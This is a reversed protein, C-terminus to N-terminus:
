AVEMAAQQQEYMLMEEDTIEIDSESDSEEGRGLAIRLKKRMEDAAEQQRQRKAAARKVLVAESVPARPAKPLVDLIRGAMNGATHMRMNNTNIAQLVHYGLDDRAAELEAVIVAAELKAAELKATLKESDADFKLQYSAEMGALQKRLRAALQPDAGSATLAALQATAGAHEAEMRKGVREYLRLVEADIDVTAASQAKGLKKNIDALDASMRGVTSHTAKSLTWVRLGYSGGLADLRVLLKTVNCKAGYPSLTRFSRLKGRVTLYDNYIANWFPQCEPSYMTDIRAMRSAASMALADRRDLFGMVRVAGAISGLAAIFTSEPAKNALASKLIDYTIQTGKNLITSM